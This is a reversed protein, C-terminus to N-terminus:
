GFLPSPLYPHLQLFPPPILLAAPNAMTNSGLRNKTQSQDSIYPTVKASYNPKKPGRNGGRPVLTESLVLLTAEWCFSKLCYSASVMTELEFYSVSYLVESPLKWGVRISIM